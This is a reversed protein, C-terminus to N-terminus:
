RSIEYKYLRNGFEVAGEKEVEGQAETYYVIAYSKNSGNIDKSVDIGLL